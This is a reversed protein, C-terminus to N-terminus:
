PLAEYGQIWLAAMRRAKCERNQVVTMATANSKKHSAMALVTHVVKEPMREGKVRQLKKAKGSIDTGM